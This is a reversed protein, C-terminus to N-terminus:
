VVLTGPKAVMDLVQCGGCSTKKVWLKQLHKLRAWCKAWRAYMQLAHFRALGGVFVLPNLRYFTDIHTDPLFIM